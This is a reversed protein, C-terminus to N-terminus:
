AALIHANAVNGVYMFDFSNMNDGLQFKTKKDYCVQLINLLNQM